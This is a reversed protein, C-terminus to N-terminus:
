QTGDLADAPPRTGPPIDTPREETPAHAELEKPFMLSVVVSLGLVLGIFGLSLEIPVHFAHDLFYPSLSEAVMKLGVFVLVVALGLKLYHFKEIVGALLFYLSRLGLIAFINSTYVIFPDKTIGFVAPISDIAFIVDSSEVLLLVVLLPTATRKGAEVVTFKDGHYDTTIPMFRRLARVVPNTETDIEHETQFAMRVGTIILFAGFVTILLEFRTLLAAGLLIMTGRLVLATLIGWFLVRHQYIAPVNFYAFILVFVFINDVSLSKELLYAGLFELAVTKGAFFYLGLNFLLSLSIWVTSWIGAEKVSIKHATRNFVGLDLALMGLVFLNFVVWFWINTEM